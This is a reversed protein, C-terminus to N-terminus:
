DDFSVFDFTKCIPFPSDQRSSCKLDLKSSLISLNDNNKNNPTTRDNLTRILNNNNNDDNNNNTFNLRKCSNATLRRRNEFSLSQGVHRRGRLSNKKSFASADVDTDDDPKDDNHSDNSNESGENNVHEDSEHDNEEEIIKQLNCKALPSRKTLKSASKATFIKDVPEMIEGQRVQVAKDIKFASHPSTCADKTTISKNSSSNSKNDLNRVVEEHYSSSSSQHRHHLLPPPPPHQHPCTAEVNSLSPMSQTMEHQSQHQQLHQQQSTNNTSASLRSLIDNPLTLEFSSESFQQSGLSGRGAHVNRHRPTSTGRSVFSLHKSKKEPGFNWVGSARFTAAALAQYAAAIEVGTVATTIFRKTRTPTPTSNSLESFSNKKKLIFKKLDTQTPQVSSTKYTLTRVIVTSNTSSSNQSSCKANDKEILSDDANTGSLAMEDKKDSISANHLIQLMEQVSSYFCRLFNAISKDNDLNASPNKNQSHNLDNTTISSVRDDILLREVTTKMEILQNKFRAILLGSIFSGQMLDM